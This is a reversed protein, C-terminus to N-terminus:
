THGHSRFEKTKLPYGIVTWDFTVAGVGSVKNVFAHAKLHSLHPYVHPFFSMVLTRVRPDVPENDIGNSFLMNLKCRGIVHLDGPGDPVDWM